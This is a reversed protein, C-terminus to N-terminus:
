DAITRRSSKSKLFDEITVFECADITRIKPVIQAVARVVPKTAQTKVVPETVVCHFGVCYSFPKLRYKATLDRIVEKSM